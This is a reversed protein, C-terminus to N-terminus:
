GEHLKQLHIRNLQGLQKESNRAMELSTYIKCIYKNKQTHEFKTNNYSFQISM